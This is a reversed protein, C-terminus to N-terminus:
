FCQVKERTSAFQQKSFNGFAMRSLPHLVGAVPPPPHFCAGGKGIQSARQGELQRSSRTHHLVPLLLLYDILSIIVFVVSVVNQVFFYQIEDPPPFVLPFAGNSWSPLNSLYIWM